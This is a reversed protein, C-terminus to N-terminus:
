FSKIERSIKFIKPNKNKIKALLVYTQIYTYFVYLVGLHPKLQPKPEGGGRGLIAPISIDYLVVFYKLSLDNPYM